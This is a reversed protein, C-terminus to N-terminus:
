VVRLAGPQALIRRAAAQIRRLGGRVADALQLGGRARGADPVPAGPWAPDLGPLRWLQRRRRGDARHRDLAELPFNVPGTIAPTAELGQYRTGTAGEPMNLRYFQPINRSDAPFRYGRPKIVFIACNDRLPLTYIGNRDTVAIDRGNSVAVNKLPKDKRADWTGNENADLYVIGTVEGPAASPETINRCSTATLIVAAVILLILKKKM